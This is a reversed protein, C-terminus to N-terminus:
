IDHSNLSSANLTLRIRKNWTPDPHEIYAPHARKLNITTEVARFSEDISPQGPPPRRIHKLARKTKEEWLELTEASAKKFYEDNKQLLHRDILPLM